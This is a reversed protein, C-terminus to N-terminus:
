NDMDKPLFTHMLWKNPSAEKWWGAINSNHDETLKKTKEFEDIIYTTAVRWFLGILYTDKNFESKFNPELHNM